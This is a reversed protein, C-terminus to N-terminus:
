PPSFLFHFVRLVWVVYRDDLDFLRDQFFPPFPFLMPGAGAALVVEGIVLFSGDLNIVLTKAEAEHDERVLFLGPNILHALSKGDAWVFELGSLDLPFRSGYSQRGALGGMENVIHDVDVLLVHLFEDTGQGVYCPKHRSARAM